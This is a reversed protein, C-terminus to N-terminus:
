LDSSSLESRRMLKKTESSVITGPKSEVSLPLKRGPVDLNREVVHQCLIREYLEVGGQLVPHAPILVKQSGNQSPSRPRNRRTPSPFAQLDRSDTWAAVFSNNKSM